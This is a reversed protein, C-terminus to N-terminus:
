ASRRSSPAGDDDLEAKLITLEELYDMLVQSFGRIGLVSLAWDVRETGGRHASRQATQVLRTSLSPLRACLAVLEGAGASPDNLHALIRHITPLHALEEPRVPALPVEARPPTM